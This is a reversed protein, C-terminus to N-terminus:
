FCYAPGFLFVDTDRDYDTIVRSWSARVLWQESFHYSCSMSILGAIGFKSGGDEKKDYFGYGGGGFSFSAKNDFFRHTLWLQAAVGRRDIPGPDGEDLYAVSCDINKALGERYEVSVTLNKESDFSNVVVPGFLVAIEQEPSFLYDDLIDCSSRHHSGFAYGLGLSASLTDFNDTADIYNGQLKVLWPEKFYWIAAISGQLCIGHRDKYNEDQCEGVTDSYLYPGIGAMLTWYRDIDKKAWIQISQGDRHHIRDEDLHGENILSFSFAYDKTLDQMYEISWFCSKENTKKDKAAGYDLFLDQARVSSALVVVCCIILVKKKM